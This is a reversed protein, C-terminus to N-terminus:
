HIDILKNYFDEKDDNLDDAVLFCAAFRILEEKGENSISTISKTLEYAFDILRKNLLENVYDQVEEISPNINIFKKILQYENPTVVKDCGVCAMCFLFFSKSININANQSLAILCPRITLFSTQQIEKLEEITKYSLEDLLFKYDM